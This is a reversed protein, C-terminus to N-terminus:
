ESQGTDQCYTAWVRKSTMWYLVWILSPIVATLGGPGLEGSVVTIFALWGAWIINFWIHFIRTIPKRVGFILYLGIVAAITAWAAIFFIPSRAVALAPHILVDVVAVLIFLIEKIVYFLLWGRIGILSKEAPQDADTM